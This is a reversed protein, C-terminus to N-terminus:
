FFPKYDDLSLILQVLEKITKEPIKFDEGIDVRKLINSAGRHSYENLTIKPLDSSKFGEVLVFDIGSAAMEGILDPLRNYGCIKITKEASVGVVVEAGATFFRDTDRAISPDLDLEHAHKICGVSGYKRLHLILNEILATKGSNKKGVVAVVKM